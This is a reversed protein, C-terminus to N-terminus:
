SPYNELRSDLVGEAIGLELLQAATSAGAVPRGLISNVAASGLVEVRASTLVSVREVAAAFVVYVAGSAGGTIWLVTKHGRAALNRIGVCLHVLYEALLAKEDAVKAAHGSADLLLIVPSAPHSHAVERVLDALQWSDTAGFAGGSLFGCFVAKRSAPAPFSFVINGRQAATYSPPLLTQLKHRYDPAQPVASLREELMVHDHRGDNASKPQALWRGIAGKMDDDLEGHRDTQLRASAGLLASVAIPDTSDFVARGEVSEIISPGSTSLRTAASYIRHSALMALLSAGGYCGRGLVALIPIGDAKALLAERYFRRFAALAPLGEDVKAGSCDLLWVMPRRRERAQGIVWLLAEGDAVGIAGRAHGPDTAFFFLPQGNLSAQGCLAKAGSLTKYQADDFIRAIKGPIDGESVAQVM